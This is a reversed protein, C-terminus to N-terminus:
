DSSTCCLQGAQIAKVTGHAAGGLAACSGTSLSGLRASRVTPTATSCTESAHATVDGTCDSTAFLEVDINCPSACSCADCTRPDDAGSAVEDVFVPYAAPCPVKPTLICLRGGLPSRELCIAANGECREASMPTRLECAQYTRAWRIPEIQQELHPTCTPEDEVQARLDVVRTPFSACTASNALSDTKTAASCSGTEVDTSLVEVPAVCARTPPGCSCTCTPEDAYLGAFFITRADHTSCDDGWGASVAYVPGEWPPACLNVVPDCVRTSSSSGSSSSAISSPPSSRDNPTSCGLACTAALVLAGFASSSKAPKMPESTRM